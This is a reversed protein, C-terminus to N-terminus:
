LPRRGSTPRGCRRGSIVRKNGDLANLLTCALHKGPAPRNLCPLRPRAPEDAEQPAEDRKPSQRLM